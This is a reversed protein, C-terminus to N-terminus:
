AEKRILDPYDELVEVPVPRGGCLAQNVVKRHSLQVDDMREFEHQPWERVEGTEMNKLFYTKEGRYIGKQGTEAWEAGSMDRKGFPIEIASKGWGTKQALIQNGYEARTMQWAEKKLM